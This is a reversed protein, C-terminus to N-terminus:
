WLGHPQGNIMRVPVGHWQTTRGPAARRPAAPAPQSREQRSETALSQDLTNWSRGQNIRPRPAEEAEGAYALRPSRAWIANDPTIASQILLALILEM